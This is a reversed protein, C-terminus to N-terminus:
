GIEGSRVNLWRASEIFAAPISEPEATTLIVQSIDGVGDLLAARRTPDLESLVDALVLLPQDGTEIEIAELEAVKLALAAGRQQGRSGYTALNMPGEMFALDDRHPGLLNVGQAIERKRLSALKEIFA